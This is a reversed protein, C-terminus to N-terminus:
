AYQKKLVHKPLSAYAFIPFIYYIFPAYNLPCTSVSYLLVVGIAGLVLFQEPMKMVLVRKILSFLFLLYFVLGVVGSLFLLRVFDNHMGGSIMVPAAKHGSLNVGLLNSSLPMEEWIAFYKKWRSMRGNFSRDVDADGEIVMVEKQILPQIKSSYIRSGLFVLIPLSLLLILIGKKTRLNFFLFLGALAIIVGWSATQKIVVFTTFCFVYVTILQVTRKTRGKIIASKKIFFYSQILFAGSAYIAYNMVDAYGGQFRAGGGRSETLEQASIPGFVLEYLLIVAPIATSYLFTVLLGNLHEKSNVVRRFYFFFLVPTLYRLVNGITSLSADILLLLGLNFLVLVTWVWFNFDTIISKYRPPLKKSLFSFLVLFPTLFGVLYLPSILPSIEKLFYLLDIIPRLLVLVTFWKMSFPLGKMWIRWEKFSM